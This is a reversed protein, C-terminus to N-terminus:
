IVRILYYAVCILAPGHGVARLCQSWSALAPEGAPCEVVCILALARGVARAGRGVEGLHRRDLGRAFFACVLGVFFNCMATAM